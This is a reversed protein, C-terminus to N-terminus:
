LATWRVSLAIPTSKVGGGRIYIKRPGSFIREGNQFVGTGPNDKTLPATSFSVAGYGLNVFSYVGDLVVIDTGRARVSSEATVPTVTYNAM